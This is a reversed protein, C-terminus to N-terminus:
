MLRVGFPSWPTHTGGAPCVGGELAYYFLGRCQNCYNWQTQYDAPPAIGVYLFYNGSNARSHEGGAPCVNPDGGGAYWLGACKECFRWNRQEATTAKGYGVRYGPTGAHSGGAPCHSQAVNPAFWLGRCKPCFSWNAQFRRKKRKGAAVPDAAGGIGVTALGLTVVRRSAIWALGAPPAIVPTPDDGALASPLLVRNRAREIM